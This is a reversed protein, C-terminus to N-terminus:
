KNMAGMGMGGMPYGGPMGGMGGTGPMMGAGPMIGAGPGMGQMGGMMSPQVGPMAMHNMGSAAGYGMSPPPSRMGNAMGGLMPNM